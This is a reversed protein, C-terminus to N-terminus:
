ESKQHFSRALRSAASAGAGAAPFHGLQPWRLWSPTEHKSDSEQPHPCHTPTANAALWRIWDVHTVAILEVVLIAALAKLFRATILFVILVACCRNSVLLQFEANIAM